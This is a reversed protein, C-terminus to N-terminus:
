LDIQLWEKFLTSIWDFVSKIFKIFIIIFNWNIFWILWIKFNYNNIWSKISWFIEYFEYDCSKCIKSFVYILSSLGLLLHCAQALLCVLVYQLSALLNILLCAVLAGITRALKCSFDSQLCTSLWWSKLKALMCVNSAALMNVQLALLMCITPLCTQINWHCHHHHAHMNVIM